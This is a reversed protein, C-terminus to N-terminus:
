PAVTGECWQMTIFSMSYPNRLVDSDGTLVDGQVGIAAHVQWKRTSWDPYWDISLGSVLPHKGDLASHGNSVKSSQSSFDANDGASTFSNLVAAFKNTWEVGEPATPCGIMGIIKGKDSKDANTFYQYETQVPTKYTTESTKFAVQDSTVQRANVTQANLGKVDVANFSSIDLHGTDPRYALCPAGEGGPVSADWCLPADVVMSVSGDRLLADTHHNAFSVSMGLQGLEDGVRELFQERDEENNLFEDLSMSNNIFIDRMDDGSLTFRHFRIEVGAGKREAMLKVYAAYDFILAKEEEMGYNFRFFNVVTTVHRGSGIGDFRFASGIYEFLGIGSLSEDCGIFSQPGNPVRGIGQPHVQNPVEGVTDGEDNFCNSQKLWQFKNHGLLGHDSVYVAESTATTIGPFVYEAAGYEFEVNIPNMHENIISYSSYRKIAWIFDVIKSAIQEKVQIEAQKNAYMGASALAIGLVGAAIITELLAFGRQKRKM